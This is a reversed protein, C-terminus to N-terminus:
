ALLLAAGLSLVSLVTSLTITGAALAPDGGLKVALVYSSVATPTAAFVLLIIREDRPLHFVTALGLVVAPLAALKLTSAALSLPVHRRIPYATLAGGLSLLALPAATDGLLELTHQVPAPPHLNSVALAIGLASALLLPNTVLALILRGPARRDLRHRALTLGAVALVNYLLVTPAFVLVARSLVAADNRTALQLVPLGVFALNGRFAAQSFVGVSPPSLRLAKAVALSLAMVLVTAVCFLAIMRLSGGLAPADVMSAVILAPLAVWYVLRDLGNRFGHDAFGTLFLAAGAAVLLVIPLLANVVQVM